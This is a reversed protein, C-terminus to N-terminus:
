PTCAVFQSRAGDPLKPCAAVAADHDDTCGDFVGAECSVNAELCNAYIQYATIACDLCDKGADEHGDLANRM